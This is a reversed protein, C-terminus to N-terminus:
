PLWEEHYFYEEQEVCTSWMGRKKRFAENQLQMYSFMKDFPYAGPISAFGHALMFANVETGGVRVYAFFTDGRAAHKHRSDWSITVVRRLTLEELLARSEIAYCEKNEIRPAKIGILIVTYTNGHFYDNDSLLQVHLENGNVVETVWVEQTTYEM